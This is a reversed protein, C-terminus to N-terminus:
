CLAQSEHAQDVEEEHHWNQDEHGNVEEHTVSFLKARVPGRWESPLPAVVCLPGEAFEIFQRVLETRTHQASLCRCLRVYFRCPSRRRHQVSQASTHSIDRAGNQCYQQDDSHPVVRQKQEHLHLVFIQQPVNSQEAEYKSNRVTSAIALSRDRLLRVRREVHVAGHHPKYPACVEQRWGPSCWRRWAGKGCPESCTNSSPRLTRSEAAVKLVYPRLEQAAVKDVPDLHERLLQQAHYQGRQQQDHVQRLCSRINDVNNSSGPM